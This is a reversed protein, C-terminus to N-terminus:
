RTAAVVAAGTLTGQLTLGFIDRIRSWIAGRGSDVPVFIVDGPMAPQKIVSRGGMVTGNARIVFINKRDAFKSYGGATILYDGIQAGSRFQFTASSKVMGYVGVVLPQPPVYLEDNNEVIFNSTIDSRGSVTELVMRGPLSRDRLYRVLANVNSQRLAGEAQPGDTRVLPDATLAIRVENIAKERGEEQQRRLSDRVFVSGFAFAEPTLGGAMEIVQQLSTGPAVFYRGPKMVEGDITVLSQLRQLPQSLGVSSLVRLITGREAQASSVEAPTLERWGTTGAPDFLLLRSLDAVTNAGGAYLLADNITDGARVEYIGERNVSGVVAVQAGSPAITIVDNDQLVLDSSTDGRILFAYLDLDAILKGSRRLQISRFSGGASPGGAALVGNVLTSLSSLAYSGPVEAFGTIKVTIGRLEGIAVSVRFDRYQRAVKEAITAQLDAYFVGGVRVEGVRPVFIRGEPDVVLRLNSAQISGTLGVILEDGPNIRYNPPVAATAPTVYSPAESVLLEWGFRRLQKGAIESVFKEFESPKQVRVRSRNTGSADDTQRSRGQETDDPNQADGGVEDPEYTSSPPVQVDGIALAESRAGERRSGSQSASSQSTQRDERLEGQDSSRVQALASSGVVVLALAAFGLWGSSRGV